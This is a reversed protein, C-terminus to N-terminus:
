SEQSANYDIFSQPYIVNSITVRFLPAIESIEYGAIGMGVQTLYFTKDLNWVVTKYFFYRAEELRKRSLIGMKKSLTPFAYSQGALGEGLGTRAGFRELALKAAGGAHNGALNSGFVFVEDPRLDTINEPTYM